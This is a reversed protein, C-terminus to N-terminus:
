KIVEDLAKLADSFRGLKQYSEALRLFLVKNYGSKEVATEITFAAKQFDNFRYM